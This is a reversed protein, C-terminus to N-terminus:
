YPLSRDPPPHTHSHCFPGPLPPQRAHIGACPSNGPAGVWRSLASTMLQLALFFDAKFLSSLTPLHTPPHPLPGLPRTPPHYSPKPLHTPSPSAWPSLTPPHFSPAIPYSFSLGLRLHTPSPSALPLPTASMKTEVEEDDGLTEFTQRVRHMHRVLEENEVERRSVQPSVSVVVHM